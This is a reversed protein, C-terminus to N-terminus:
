PVTVSITTHAEILVEDPPSSNVATITYQYTGPSRNNFGGICGSIGFLSVLALLALCRLTKRRLGLGLLLAGALALGTTPLPRGRRASLPIASGYPYFDIVGKVTQGTKVPTLVMPGYACTPIRAETVPGSYKCSVNLDGTMPIGTVTYKSLGPGILPMTVNAATIAFPPSAGAPTSAGLIALCLLGSLRFFLNGSQAFM